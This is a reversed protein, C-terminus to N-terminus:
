APVSYLACLSGLLSAGDAAEDPSGVLQLIIRAPALEVIDALMRAIEDADGIYLYKAIDDLPMAYQARVHGAARSVAADRPEDRRVLVCKATYMWPLRGAHVALITRIRSTSVHLASWGSGTEAIRRLRDTSRTGVWLRPAPDLRGPAIAALAREYRALESEFMAARRSIDAGLLDFEPPFDGGIGVGLEIRGAATLWEMTRIAKALWAGSRLGILGVNTGLVCDVHGALFSLVSFPDLSPTRFLLHDGAWLSTAGAGTVWDAIDRLEGARPIGPTGVNPLQFGFEM